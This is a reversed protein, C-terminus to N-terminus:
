GNWFNASLFVMPSTNSYENVKYFFRYTAGKEVKFSNFVIHTVGDCQLTAVSTVPTYVSGSLKKKMQISVTLGSNEGRAAISVYNGDAYMDNEGYDWHGYVPWVTDTYATRTSYNEPVTFEVYSWGEEENVATHNTEENNLAAASVPYVCMTTLIVFALVLSIWTKKKM